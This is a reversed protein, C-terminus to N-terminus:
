NMYENELFDILAEIKRDKGKYQKPDKRAWDLAENLEKVKIRTQNTKIYDIAKYLCGEDNDHVIMTVLGM